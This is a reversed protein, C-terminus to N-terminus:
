KLDEPKIGLKKADKILKQKQDEKKKQKKEKLKRALELRKNREEDTESRTGSLTLGNAENGYGYYELEFYMTDIYDPYQKKFDQFLDIIDDLTLELDYFSITRLKEHKTLYKKVM